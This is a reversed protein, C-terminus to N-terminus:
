IAGKDSMGREPKDEEDSSEDEKPIKSMKICGTFKTQAQELTRIIEPPIDSAQESVNGINRQIEEIYKTFTYSDVVVADSRVFMITDKIDRAIKGFGKATLRANEARESFAFYRQFATIIASAGGVSIGIYKNELQLAAIVGTASTLILAPVSMMNQYQKLRSSHINYANRNHKCMDKYKNLYTMLYDKQHNKLSEVNIYVEGKKAEDGM